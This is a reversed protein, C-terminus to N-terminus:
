HLDTISAQQIKKRMIETLKTNQKPTLLKLVDWIIKDINNPDDHLLLSIVQHTKNIKETNMM